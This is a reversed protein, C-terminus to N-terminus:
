RYFKCFEAMWQCIWTRKAIPRAMRGAIGCMFSTSKGLLAVYWNTPTLYGGGGVSQFIQMSQWFSGDSFYKIDTVVNLFTWFYKFWWFVVVFQTESYRTYIVQKINRCFAFIMEEAVCFQLFGYLNWLVMFTTCGVHKVKNILEFMICLQTINQFQFLYQSKM